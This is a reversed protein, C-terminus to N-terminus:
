GDVARGKGKGIETTAMDVEGVVESTPQASEASLTLEVFLPNTQHRFVRSDFVVHRADEGEQLRRVQSV